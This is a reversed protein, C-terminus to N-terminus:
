LRQDLARDRRQRHRLDSREIAIMGVVRVAEARVGELPAVDLGDGRDDAVEVRALQV